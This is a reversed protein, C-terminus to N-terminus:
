SLRNAGVAIMEVHAKTKHLEAGALRIVRTILFRIKGRPTGAAFALLYDPSYNAENRASDL